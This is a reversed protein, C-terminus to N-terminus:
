LHEIILYEAMKTFVSDNILNNLVLEGSSKIAGMIERYHLIAKAEYDSIYPHKALTQFDALNINIREIESKDVSLMNENLKVISDTIGYVENLQGISYFGGLLDRYKCIRKALVPGIGILNEFEEYTARNIEITVISKNAHKFANASRNFKQGYFIYPELRNYTISDLGYIKKLDEKNNFKGGKTRYNIWAKRAGPSVGLKNIDDSSIVNPDFDFLPMITTKTSEFTVSGTKRGNEPLTNIWEWVERDFASKEKHTQKILSPLILRIVLSLM